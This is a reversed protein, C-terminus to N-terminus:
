WILESFKYNTKCWLVWVLRFVRTLRFLKISRPVTNIIYM